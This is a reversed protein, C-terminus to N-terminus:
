ANKVESFALCLSATDNWHQQNSLLSDLVPIADHESNSEMMARHTCRDVWELPAVIDM